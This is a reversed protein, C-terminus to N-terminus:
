CCVMSTMDHLVVNKKKISSLPKLLVHLLSFILLQVFFAHKASIQSTMPEFGVLGCNKLSEM